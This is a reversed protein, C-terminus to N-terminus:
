LGMSLFTKGTSYHLVVSTQVPRNSVVPTPLVALCSSADAHAFPPMHCDVSFAVGGFDVSDLFECGETDRPFIHFQSKSKIREAPLLM